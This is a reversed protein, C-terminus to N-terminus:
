DFLVSPYVKLFSIIVFHPVHGFMERAVEAQEGGAGISQLFYNEEWYDIVGM